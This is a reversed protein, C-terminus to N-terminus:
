SARKIVSQKVIVRQTLLDTFTIRLTLESSDVSSEFPCPLVYEYLLGSGHWLARAEEPGFDWRGVRPNPKTLDFAEVQFAGASKLEDGDTDLPVVYVKLGERSQGNENLTAWGTLRGIKLDVPTFLQRIREEPLVPVTPMRSELVRITAQDQQSRAELLRIRDLLAQNQKRLEINVASPKSACGTGVVLGLICVSQGIRCGTRKIVSRVQWVM